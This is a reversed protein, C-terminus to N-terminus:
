FQREMRRASFEEATRQRWYSVAGDRFALRIPQRGLLRLVLATPVILVVFLVTLLIRSNVYGLGAALKMWRARIPALWAPALLAAVLFAVAPGILWWTIAGSLVFRLLAIGGLGGAMIAGFTRNRDVWFSVARESM